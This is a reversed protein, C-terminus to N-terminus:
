KWGGVARAGEENMPRAVLGSQSMTVEYTAGDAMPMLVASGFVTDILPVGHPWRVLQGFGAGAEAPRLDYLTRPATAEDPTAAYEGALRELRYRSDLGFLNLWSRWKLVRAELRWEDGSLDFTRSEGSPQVLTAEFRGDGGAKLTITAVPREYDLRRYTQLDLGLLLLAAVIAALLVGSVVNGIARAPRRFLAILGSLVLGIAFAGVLAPVIWWWWPM